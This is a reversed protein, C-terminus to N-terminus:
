NDQYNLPRGCVDLATDDLTAKVQASATWGRGTVPNVNVTFNAVGSLWYEQWRGDLIWETTQKLKIVSCPHNLTQDFKM